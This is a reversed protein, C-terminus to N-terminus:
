FDLTIARQEAMRVLLRSKQMKKDLQFIHTCTIMINKDPANLASSFLLICILYRKKRYEM